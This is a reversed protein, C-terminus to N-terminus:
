WPLPPPQCVMNEAHDRARKRAEEKMLAVVTNISLSGQCDTPATNSPGTEMQEENIAEEPTENVYVSNYSGADSVKQTEEVLPSAELHKVKSVEQAEEVLPDAELYEEVTVDLTEEVDVLM